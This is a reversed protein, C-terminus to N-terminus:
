QETTLKERSASCHLVGAKEDVKVFMYERIVFFADTRKM